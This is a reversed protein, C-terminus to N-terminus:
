SACTESNLSRSPCCRVQIILKSYLIHSSLRHRRHLRAFTIILLYKLQFSYPAACLSVTIEIRRRGCRANGHIRTKTAIHEIRCKTKKKRMGDIPTHLPCINRCSVYDLMISWHFWNIRYIAFETGMMM